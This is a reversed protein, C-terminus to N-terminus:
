VVGHPFAATRRPDHAAARARREPLPRPVFFTRRPWLFKPTSRTTCVFCVVYSSVYPRPTQLGSGSRRGLVLHASGCTGPAARGPLGRAPPLAAVVCM